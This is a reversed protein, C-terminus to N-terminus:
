RAASAVARPATAPVAACAPLAVTFTSGGDLHSDVWLRGQHYDVIDRCIALGLGTGRPKGTLTEGVQQFKEFIREHDEAAIGIGTDTIAIRVEAGVCRADLEITGSPTFKMANSLLNAVVQQLRDRDAYILPLDAGIAQKFILGQEVILPAYTRVSDYLLATVDLEQMDWHLQGAEIKTIDLVDNVLRTLRESEQNIISLFEQQVNADDYSLLLESFSRISSLPTRLEHSVNALFNTKMEDVSLLEQHALALDSYARQLDDSRVALTRYLSANEIALTAREVFLDLIDRDIGPVVRGIPLSVALTALAEQHTPAALSFVLAQEGSPLLEHAERQRQGASAYHDCLADLGARAPVNAEPCPYQIAVPTDGARGALDSAPQLVVRTGGFLRHAAAVVAHLVREFELSTGLMATVQNLLNAQRLREQLAAEARRAQESLYGALVVTIFLFGSRFVFIGDLAHRGLRGEVGDLCIFILVTALSPGYGYRMAASITATFLLYYFPSTFGGGVNIMAINLLADGIVTLYGSAFLAPRRLLMIQVLTNYIAALLLLGYAALMRPPALHALLLGPSMIGIGLWRVVVFRWELQLPRAFTTPGQWLRIGVHLLRLPWRM